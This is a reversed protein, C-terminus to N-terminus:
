AAEAWAVVIRLLADEPHACGAYVQATLAEEARTFGAPWLPVGRRKAMRCADGCWRAHRRAAVFEAGCGECRCVTAAM